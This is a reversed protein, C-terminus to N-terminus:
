HASNARASIRRTAAALAAIGAILLSGLSPEPVFTVTVYGTGHATSPATASQPVAIRGAAFFQYQHGALLTGTPSGILDNIEDGGLGGVVFSENPTTQSRQWSQFVFEFTTFDFIWAQLSTTRGGPDNSSYAGSFSYTLNTDSSFIIQADSMAYAGAHATRSDDFVFGFGDNSLTFDTMSSLPLAGAELSGSDPLSTPNDSISEFVFEEPGVNAFVESRVFSTYGPVVNLTLTASSASTSGTVSVVVATFALLVRHLM